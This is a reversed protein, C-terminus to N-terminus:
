WAYGVGLLPVVGGLPPAVYAASAKALFGKKLQLRYGARVFPMNWDSDFLNVNFGLGFEGFHRPGGFIGGVEGILNFPDWILVGGTATIGVKNSVPIIREYCTLLIDMNYIANHRIDYMTSTDKSKKIDTTTLHLEEVNLAQGSRLTSQSFGIFPIILLIFKLTHIM